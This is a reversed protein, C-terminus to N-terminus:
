GDVDSINSPMKVIWHQTFTVPSLALLRKYVMKEMPLAQNYLLVAMTHRVSQIITPGFCIDVILLRLM